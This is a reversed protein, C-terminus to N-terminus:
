IIMRNVDFTYLQCFANLILHMPNRRLSKCPWPVNYRSLEIIFYQLLKNKCPEELNTMKYLNLFYCVAVMARELVNEATESGICNSLLIKVFDEFPDNQTLHIIEVHRFEELTMIRQSMSILRSMDVDLGPDKRTKHIITSLIERGSADLGIIVLHQQGSTWERGGHRPVGLACSCGTRRHSTGPEEAKRESGGRDRGQAHIEPVGHVHVPGDPRPEDVNGPCCSPLVKSGEAPGLLHSSTSGETPSQGVSFTRHLEISNQGTGQVNGGADPVRNVHTPRGEGCNESVRQVM